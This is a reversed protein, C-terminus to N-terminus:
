TRFYDSFGGPTFTPPEESGFGWDFSLTTADHPVKCKLVLRAVDNADNGFGDQVDAPFPLNDPNGNGGSSLLGAATNPVLVGAIGTSLIVYSSGASPFNQSAVTEVVISAGDVPTSTVQCFLKATSTLLAAEIQAPTPPTGEYEVYVEIREHEAAYAPAPGSTSIFLMSTMLVLTIGTIVTTSNKKNFTTRIMLKKRLATM